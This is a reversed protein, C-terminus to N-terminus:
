PPFTSMKAFVSDFAPAIFQAGFTSLHNDDRYIPQDRILIQCKGNRDFLLNEPRVLQVHEKLALDQLVPNVDQNRAAYDSRTPCINDYLFPFRNKLSLYRVVDNGMEPVMSVLVVRRKMKLLTDVTRSLGLRFMVAHSQTGALERYRDTQISGVQGEQGYSKGTAYWAWRGSLIVTQIEPHSAIFGIVEENYKLEDVAPDNRDQMRDIGLLLPTSSRTIVYGSMGYAKSMEEIAPIYARAHSDGILLFSPKASSVGVKPPTWHKDIQKTMLEWKLHEKWVPDDQVRAISSTLEPTLGVYRGPLGDNLYLLVGTGSAALMVIIAVQFLRDRNPLLMNRGRFLQEVYRWSLASVVLSLIVIVLSDRITFPRFMLYKAFAVLPWHWLYLSYSILGVFVLPKASLIKRVIINEDEGDNGYIILAAGLVPTIAAYGPFPTSQSYFFVSYTVLGLGIISLLNKIATSFIKPLLGLALVSGALLEWARTLVFYFAAGPQHYVGWICGALSLLATVLIWLLYRGKLFRHILSLALPFFIYFQEEVALSWTHLLPKQLSPTDFYGSQSWFLINSFFLTTAAMSLGLEKFAPAQFLVAGVVATFLIVPFLAPFIRRIRREYFRAISFDGSQLDNLIISTILFGSIVFFIDVGVYGGGFGPVDTHFFVVPLVAIARLGDIDPRYKLKM